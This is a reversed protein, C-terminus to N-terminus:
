GMKMVLHLMQTLYTRILDFKYPYSSHQEYIMKEFLQSAKEHDAESLVYAVNRGPTFMPLDLVRKRLMGSLFTEEFVCLYGNGSKVLKDMSSFESFYSFSLRGEILAIGFKM